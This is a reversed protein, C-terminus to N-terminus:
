VHLKGVAFPVVTVGADTLASIVNDAFQVAGYTDGHLCLTDVPMSLEEGTVAFVTGETAFRVAQAAVAKPDRLVAGVLARSMLTGDLNYARDCFGERIYQVGITDCLDQLPTGPIGMVPYWSLGWNEAARMVGQLFAAGVRTDYLVDHYLAGHPKVHSLQIDKKDAAAAVRDVQWEVLRTIASSDLDSAYSIRGFNTRDAYSPHAGVQVGFKSAILVSLTVIDESGAHAGAAISASSVRQFLAIDNDSEEGLDANLDITTTTMRTNDPHAVM